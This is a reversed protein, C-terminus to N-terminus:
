VQRICQLSPRYSSGGSRRFRRLPFGPRRRDDAGRDAGDTMPLPRYFGEAGNSPDLAPLGAVPALFAHAQTRNSRGWLPAKCKSPDLRDPEKRRRVLPMSGTSGNPNEQRMASRRSFGQEHTNSKRPNGQIREGSDLSILPNHPKKRCFYKERSKARMTPRRLPLQRDLGHSLAPNNM